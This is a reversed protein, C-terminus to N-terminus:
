LVINKYKEADWPEHKQPIGTRLCEKVEEIAQETTQPCYGGVEYGFYVGFREKYKKCLENYQLEEPTAKSKHNWDIPM